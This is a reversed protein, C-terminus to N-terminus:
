FGVDRMCSALQAFAGSLVAAQPNIALPVVGCGSSAPVLSCVLPVPAPTRFLNHVMGGHRWAPPPLECCAPAHLPAHGAHGASCNGCGM